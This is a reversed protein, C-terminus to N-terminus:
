KIRYGTSNLKLQKLKLIREELSDNSDIKAYKVIDDRYTSDILSRIMSDEGTERIKPNFKQIKKDKFEGKTNDFFSWEYTNGYLLMAGYLVDSNYILCLHNSIEDNNLFILSSMKELLSVVIKEDIDEDLLIRIKEKIYKDTILRTLKSYEYNPQMTLFYNVANDYIKKYNVNIM